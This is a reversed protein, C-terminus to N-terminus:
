WELVIDENDGEGGVRGDKGYSAMYYDTGNDGPTRYVYPNGWPDMPISRNLYPGDWGKKDSVRLEELNEPFDGVDLRFTQLSTDLSLMQTQAIKRQSSGVKGFMEPAVIGALLGMIIIVIMLEILTFGRQRNNKM